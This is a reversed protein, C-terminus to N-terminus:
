INENIHMKIREIENESFIRIKYKRLLDATVGSGSILTRTFSGDYINRKGCSPSKEKLLAIGIGEERCTRLAAWAGKIFPQTVDGKRTKVAAIGELVDLGQGGSIEAAPRPIPLGGAVEPCFPVLRGQSAWTKLLPHDVPVSRGDYRVAHGLLCASILIKEM